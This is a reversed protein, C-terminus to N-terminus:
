KKLFRRRAFGALGILGSGLLLMTAPEPIVTNGGAFGTDIGSPPFIHAAVLYNKNNLALVDSASDWTEASTNLLDFSISIVASLFGDKFKLAINFDGFESINGAGYSEFATNNNGGTWAVNSVTASGGNTNVDVSRGDGILYPSVRTVTITAHTTDTRDVLVTAFPPTYSALAANPDTIQYTIQDALASVATLLVLLMSLVFVIRKM